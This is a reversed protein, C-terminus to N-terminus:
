EVEAGYDGASSSKPAEKSRRKRKKRSSSAGHSESASSDSPRKKSSTSAGHSESASFKIRKANGQNSRAPPPSPVSPNLHGELTALASCIWGFAQDRMWELANCTYRYAQNYQNREFITWTEVETGYFKVQGNDELAAWYCSLQVIYQTVQLSLVHVKNFITEHTEENYFQRIRQLNSLMTAANHLNQLRAARLTGGSGKVEITFLPLALGPEKAVPWAFAGLHFLAQHHEFINTSWGITMSPKPAALTPKANPAVMITRDWLQGPVTYLEDSEDMKQLPIIRPLIKQCITQETTHVKDILKVLRRVVTDDLGSDDRKRKLARKLADLDSYMKDIAGDAFVIGREELADLYMHHYASITGKPEGSVFTEPLASSAGSAMSPSGEFSSPRNVTNLQRLAQETLPGVMLDPTDPDKSSKQRETCGGRAQALKNGDDISRDLPGISVCDADSM